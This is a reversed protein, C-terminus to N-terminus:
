RQTRVWSDGRFGAVRGLQLLKTLVLRPAHVMARYTSAPAGAARLGLLVHLPLAAAAALWPVLAWAPVVGAAVLGAAIACGAVVLGALYGLPPVALELVVRLLGPRRDLAAQRLLRPIWVRALHVKGGDWRLQQEAAAATDPAAPSRLIAGRAFAIPVGAATLVLSYELDEASSYAQWPTALLRTRGLLMGNGALTGPMHLVARGSPRVRNVLLFAAVRLTSAITGDELLLSEGQVVEAGAEFPQVLRALFTRDAITDADVVVVAAPPAAVGLVREFAWRLAHGKGRAGPDDRVMVRAGARAAIAATDDSCNDAVVIVEYLAAPYAQARLARVCRAILLAEDHAPVIVALRTSSRPAQGGPRDFFAAVSLAVLYVGVVAVGCGAVLLTASLLLSTV